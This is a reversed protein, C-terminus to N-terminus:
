RGPIARGAQLSIGSVNRLADRLETVNQDELLDSTLVTVIRPTEQVSRQYQVSDMFTGRYGTVTVTDLAPTASESSQAQAHSGVTALLCASATLWKRLHLSGRQRSGGEAHTHIASSLTKKRTTLM